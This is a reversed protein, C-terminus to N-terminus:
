PSCRRGRVSAASRPSRSRTPRCTGSPRGSTSASAPRSRRRASDSRSGAPHVTASTRLIAGGLFGADCRGRLEEAGIPRIEDPAGLAACAEIADDSSGLQAESTAVYLTPAARFWADVGTASAGSASGASAATPRAPSRSHASTASATACSRCTTGSRRSSAATGAARGTARSGQRSCSSTSRPELEKLHWATWLGLYGGGVIVVDATTDGELPATPEVPGAEELWWGYRTHRVGDM